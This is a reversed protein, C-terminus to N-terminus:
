VTSDRLGLPPSPSCLKPATYCLSEAFSRRHHEAHRTSPTVVLLLAVPIRLAYCSCPCAVILAGVCSTSSSSSRLHASCCCCALSRCLLTAHARLHKLLLSFPPTTMPPPTAWLKGFDREPLARSRLEWVLLSYPTRSSSTSASFPHMPAQTQSKYPRPSLFLHQFAYFIVALSKVTMSTSFNFM